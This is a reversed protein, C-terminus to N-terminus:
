ALSSYMARYSPQQSNGCAPYTEADTDQHCHDSNREKGVALLPKQEESEYEEPHLLRDPEQPELTPRETGKKCSRVSKTWTLLKYTVYVIFYMLPITALVAVVATPVYAIYRAYMNCFLAFAFLSFLTSDWVNLWFKDKYPRFLLFVLAAIVLCVISVMEDYMGFVCGDVVM